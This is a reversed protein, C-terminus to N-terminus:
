SATFARGFLHGKGGSAPKLGQRRRGPFSRLFRKDSLPSRAVFAGQGEAEPPLEMDVIGRRLAARIERARSLAAVWAAAAQPASCSSGLASRRPQSRRPRAGTSASSRCPASRRPARRSSSLRRAALRLPASRRPALRAPASRSALSRDRASNAPLLRVPARRALALSFWASRLAALRTRASR